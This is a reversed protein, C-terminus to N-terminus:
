HVSELQVNPYQWCLAARGGQAMAIITINETINKKEMKPAIQM